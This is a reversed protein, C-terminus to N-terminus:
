STPKSTTLDSRGPQSQRGRCGCGRGRGLRAMKEKVVEQKCNDVSFTLKRPAVIKGYALMDKDSLMGEGSWGEGNNQLISPREGGPSLYTPLGEIMKDEVHIANKTKEPQGKASSICEGLMSISQEERKRVMCDESGNLCRGEGAFRLKGGEKLTSHMVSHIASGSPCPGEGAIGLKGGEELM